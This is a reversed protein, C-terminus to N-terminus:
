SSFRRVFVAPEGTPLLAWWAVVWTRGAAAASVCFAGRGLEIPSAALDLPSSAAGEPSWLQIVHGAASTWVLLARGSRDMAMEPAGYVGASPPAVEHVSGAPTGNPNFFQLRVTSSPNRPNTGNDIWSLATRGDPASAIQAAEVDTLTVPAGLPRASAGFRQVVLRGGPITNDFAAVAFSGDLAQAVSVYAGKLRVVPSAPHGAADLLECSTTGLKTPWTGLYGGVPRPFLQDVFAPTTVTSPAGASLVREEFLSATHGPIELYSHWVVIDGLAGRAQAAISRLFRSVRSATDVRIPTGVRTGTGDFRQAWLAFAEGGPRETWVMTFSRDAHGIVQSCYDINRGDSVVVTEPGLPALQAGSPLASLPALLLLGLVSPKLPSKM